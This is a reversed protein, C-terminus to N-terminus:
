SQLVKSNGSLGISRAMSPVILWTQKRRLGASIGLISAGGITASSLSTLRTCTPVSRTAPISSRHANMMKGAYRIQGYGNENVQYPWDICADTETIKRLFLEPERSPTKGALPDGYKRFRRYHSECYGKSYAVGECGFARCNGITVERKIPSTM